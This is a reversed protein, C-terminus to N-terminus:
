GVGPEPRLKAGLAQRVEALGRLQAEEAAIAARALREYTRGHMGPPKEPLRELIGGGKQGLRKRIKLAKTLLRDTRDQKQTQYCLRCCHRCAFRLRYALYLVAVRRTCVPCLLWPRQGGYNCATWTLPVVQRITEWAGGRASAQYVMTISSLDQAVWGGASGTPREGRSWQLSLIQGPTLYGQQRLWRVDLRKKEETTDKGGWSDRGSGYGGM